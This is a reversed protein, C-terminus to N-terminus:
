IGAESLEREARDIARERASPTRIPTEASTGGHQQSFRQIAENSTYVKGGISVSELKRGKCGKTRWRWLTAVSPRDPFLAAAQPLTLLKETAVDIM